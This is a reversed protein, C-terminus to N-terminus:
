GIDSKDSDEGGRVAIVSLDVATMILCISLSSPCDDVAAADEVAAVALFGDFGEMRPRNM